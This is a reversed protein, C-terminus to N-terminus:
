FDWYLVDDNPRSNTVHHYIVNIKRGPRQFTREDVNVDMEVGGCSPLRLAGIVYGGSVAQRYDYLHVNSHGPVTDQVETEPLQFNDLM